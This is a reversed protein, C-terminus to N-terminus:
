ISVHGAIRAWGMWKWPALNHFKHFMQFLFSNEFKHTQKENENMKIWYILGIKFIPNLHDANSISEITGLFFFRSYKANECRYNM